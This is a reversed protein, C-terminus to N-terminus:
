DLYKKIIQTCLNNKQMLNNINLIIYIYILNIIYLLSYIDFKYRISFLTYNLMNNSNKKM